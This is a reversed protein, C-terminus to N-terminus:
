QLGKGERACSDQVFTLSLKDMNRSCHKSYQIHRTSYFGGLSCYFGGLSCGTISLWSYFGGLSCYNSVRKKVGKENNM